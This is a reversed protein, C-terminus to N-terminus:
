LGFRSAKPALLDILKDCYLEIMYCQVAVAFKSRSADILSFVDKFARPALSAILFPREKTPLSVLPKASAFLGNRWEGGM